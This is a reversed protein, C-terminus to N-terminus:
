PRTADAGACRQYLVSVPHRWRSYGNVTISIENGDKRILTEFEGKPYDTVPTGAVSVIKTYAQVLRLRSEATREAAVIVADTTAGFHSRDGAAITHRLPPGAPPVTFTTRIGKGPPLSCDPSWTGVIGFEIMVSGASEARVSSAFVLCLVAAPYAFWTRSM